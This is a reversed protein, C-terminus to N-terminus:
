VWSPITLMSRKRTANRMMCYGLGCITFSRYTRRCQWRSQMLRAYAGQKGVIEDHTAPEHSYLPIGWLISGMPLSSLTETDKECFHQGNTLIHFRLDPRATLVRKLLAFLQDKYLLPGGGSIGITKGTETLLAAAEFYPFMDVHHEKTPQSCMLCLQDCRETVLFTNHMSNARIVRHAIKRDPIVFLVDGDAESPDTDFIQLPGHNTAYTAAKATVTELQADFPTTRGFTADLFHRDDNLRVVFPDGSPAEITLRLPIM